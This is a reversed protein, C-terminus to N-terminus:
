AGILEKLKIATESAQTLEFETTTIHSEVTRKRARLDKIEQECVRSLSELKKITKTFGRMISNYNSM